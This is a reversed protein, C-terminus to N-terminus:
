KVKLKSNEEIIKKMVLFYQRVTKSNQKLVKNSRPMAGTHMAIHEAMKVSILYNKSVGLGSLQWPNRNGPSFSLNDKEYFVKYGGLFPDQNVINKKAWDVFKTTTKIGSNLQKWLKRADICLGDLNENESLIPFDEQYETILSIEKDTCNLKLLDEKAFKM